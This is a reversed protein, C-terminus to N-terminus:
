TILLMIFYYAAPATFIMSDFRDLVGGHGPIISGTDKIGATRKLSSEFLDGLIGFFGVVLGLLAVLYLSASPYFLYVLAAGLVSGALGGLAGEVTKGPSIQPALKKRGIMKGTFYALTDGAWTGALLILVWFLGGELTRILYFFIFMSVYLTGALGAAVDRPAMAPYRAVGTILLLAVVPMIAMGLAQVGGLCASASLALVGALMAAASPKLEMRVFLKNLEFLALVMILVTVM